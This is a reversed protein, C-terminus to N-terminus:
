FAVGCRFTMGVLLWLISSQLDENKLQYVWSQSTVFIFISRLLMIHMRVTAVSYIFKINESVAEGKLVRVRSWYLLEVYQPFKLFPFRRAEDTEM